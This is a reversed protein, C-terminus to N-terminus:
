GAELLRYGTRGPRVFSEQLMLLYAGTIIHKLGPEQVARSAEGPSFWRCKRQGKEVWWNLQTTVELAFVKVECLSSQNRTQKTYEYTGLPESWVHGLVGAEDRAEKAAAQPDNLSRM